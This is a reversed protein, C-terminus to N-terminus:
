PIFGDIQSKIAPFPNTPNLLPAPGAATAVRADTIAQILDSLVEILEDSSNKVSFKNMNLITKEGNIEINKGAKLIIAHGDKHWLIVDGQVLDANENDKTPRTASNETAIIIMNDRNGGVSAIVAESDNPPLSGFGYQQILEVAQKTEGKLLSIDAVQIVGSNDVAKILAKGIMLQVRRKLPSIWRNLVDLRINAM